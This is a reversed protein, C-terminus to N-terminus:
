FAWGVTLAWTANKLSGLYDKVSQDKAIGKLGRTVRLHIGLNGLDLGTGLHWGYDINSYDSNKFDLSVANGNADKLKGNSDALLSAYFGTHVNLFGFVHWQISVPLEVYSLKLKQTTDSQFSLSSGKASFLLEPRISFRGQGLPFQGFVGTTYGIRSKKDQAKADDYLNAGNIGAKIGFQAGDNMQAFTSQLCTFVLSFVILYKISKM